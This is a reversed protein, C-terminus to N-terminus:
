CMLSQVETVPADWDLPKACLLQDAMATGKTNKTGTKARNRSEASFWTEAALLAAIEEEPKGSRSAYGRTMSAAIKDLTAAMERMEAATRM